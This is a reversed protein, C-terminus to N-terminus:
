KRDSDQAGEELVEEGETGQVFGVAHVRDATGVSDDVRQEIDLVQVLAPDQQALALLLGDLVEQHLVDPLLVHGQHHADGDGVRDGGVGRVPQLVQQLHDVLPLDGAELLLAAAM